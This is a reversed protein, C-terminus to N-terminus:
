AAQPGYGAMQMAEDFADGLQVSSGGGGGSFLSEIGPIGQGLLGGAGLGALLYNMFSPTQTTTGTLSGAGGVASTGATAAGAVTPIAGALFANTMNAPIGAINQGAQEQEGALIQQGFSSNLLGSESLQNKLAQNSTSYAQRAAALNANIAPIQSNVGGTQLASQTQGALTSITPFGAKFLQSGMSALQAAYPNTQTSTSSKGGGAGAM